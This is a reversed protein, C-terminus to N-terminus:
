GFLLGLGEAVEEEKEETGKTEDAADKGAAEAAEEEAASVAEGAKAEEQETEQEREAIQQRLSEGLAAPDTINGSLAIAQSQARMLLADIIGPEPIASNIGLNRADGAAKALLTLITAGTPYAIAVALNFASTASLTIDSAYKEEDLDLVDATMVSGNDYVARLELGVTMPYIELRTLMEALARSVTEGEHAVVATEKIVVKGKDIKAPIGANQLDGVIPGPAFSTPGGEVVIDYPASVGAKIPAQTKSSAILKFLTFPNLDTFILATQDGVHTNMSNIDSDGEGEGLARQILNNRYITLKATGMFSRRMEQLQKAPIDRIGAIGMVPYKDALERIEEVCDLKWQPVHSTRHETAADMAMAM